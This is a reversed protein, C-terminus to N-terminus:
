KGICFRSFINELVNETVDKGLLAGLARMAQQLDVAIIELGLFSGPKMLGQINKTAQDLCALTEELAQRGRLDLAIQGAATTIALSELARFVADTLAPLNDGTRGSIALIKSPKFETEIENIRHRLGPEAALDIKNLVAVVKGKHVDLASYLQLQDALPASADFVFIILDALKLFQRSRQIATQTIRDVPITLLGATDCLLVEQQRYQWPATLIDRTTGPLPSCIARDLGTLKNLLTSKGANAPGALFVQPLATITQSDIAQNLINGITQKLTQLDRALQELTISEIEEESFDINAELLTALQVLKEFSESLWRHLKGELMNLAAEIQADNRADVLERVAQAQTLDMKGLLFARATFEGPKAPSLGLHLLHQDILRMLPPASPLHIEAMDQGTYSNPGAFIWVWCRCKLDDSLCFTGPLARRAHNAPAFPGRLDPIFVNQLTNFTDPGSLRLIARSGSRHLTAWAFITTDISYFADM